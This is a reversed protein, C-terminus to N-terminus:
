AQEAFIEVLEGFRIHGLSPEESAPLYGTPGISGAM